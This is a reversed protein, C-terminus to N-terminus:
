PRAEWEPRLISYLVADDYAGDRKFYDRRVGDPKMGLKQMVHGSAPNSRCHVAHVSHLKLERFAYDMVARVAETMYGQGWYPKGLWFGLEAAEDPLRLTLGVNGLLTGEGKLTVALVIKEQRAFREQQRALWRVAEVRTFPHPLNGLNRAVEWDDAVRVLDDADAPTYPRLKLRATLLTPIEM